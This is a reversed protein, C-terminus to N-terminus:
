SFSLMEELACRQGLPSPLGGLIVLYGFLCAFLHMVMFIAATLCPILSVSGLWVWGLGVKGFGVLGLGALGFWVRSM